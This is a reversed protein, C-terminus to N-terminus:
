AVPEDLMTAEGPGLGQRFELVRYTRLRFSRRSIAQREDHRVHVAGQASPKRVELVTVPGHEALQIAPSAHTKPTKKSSTGSTPTPALSGVIVAVRVGEKGGNPQVTQHGSVRQGNLGRPPSGM